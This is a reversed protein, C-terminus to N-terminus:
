VFVDNPPPLPLREEVMLQCSEQSTRMWDVPLGEPDNRGRLDLSLDM